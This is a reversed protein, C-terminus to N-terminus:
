SRKPSSHDMAAHMYGCAAILEHRKREEDKNETKQLCSFDLPGGAYCTNLLIPADHCAKLISEQIATWDLSMGSKKGAVKM